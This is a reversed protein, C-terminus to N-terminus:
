VRAGGPSAAALGLANRVTGLEGVPLRVSLSLNHMTAQQLIYVFVFCVFFLFLLFVRGGGRPSAAVPGLAEEFKNIM